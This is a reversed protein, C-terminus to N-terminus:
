EGDPPPTPETPPTTPPATPPATPTVPAPAVPTNEPEYRYGFGKFPVRNGWGTALEEFEYAPNEDISEGNEIQKSHVIEHLLIQRTFRTKEQNSLKTNMFNAVADDLTITSQGVGTANTVAEVNLQDVGLSAGVATPNSNDADEFETIDRVDLTPGEGPRLMRLIDERNVFGSVRCMEEIKKDNLGEVFKYVSAIAAELNPYSARLAESVIFKGDVDKYLIPCAGM